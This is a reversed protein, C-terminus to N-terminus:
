RGFRGRPIFRRRRAFHESFTKPRVPPPLREYPFDPIQVRPLKRGIFREIAAIFREEDPSVITYADGVDIHRGTRGIRHVYDETHQPVDYNIVHSIKRIDLGRAAIDTAVMIQFRGTKFGQLGSNRQAQSLDSHMPSVSFDNTQLFRALHDAGRKTRCFILVSHADITRLIAMLLDNKQNRMVPYLMQTISEATTGQPALRIMVPNKLALHGLQTIENPLTASFLMTQRETPLYRLIARLAPAFGMDLMRDAEDLILTHVMALSITRRELHDLLRGPTAIVLSAGGRLAQLQPVMSEGGVLLASRVHTFRGVEKSVQAVQAALERTPLLVLASVGNVPRELMRHLVPLLFALTKGTGTQAAVMVDRGELVPTIAQQQVPTPEHFQLAEIAKHLEPRLAFNKFSM